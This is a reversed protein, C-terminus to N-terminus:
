KKGSKELRSADLNIEVGAKNSSYALNIEFVVYHIKINEYKTITACDQIKVIFPSYVFM